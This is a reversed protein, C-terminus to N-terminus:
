AHIAEKLKVCVLNMEADTMQPFLPLALSLRDALTANPYNEARLDYKKVYYGLLVPAHTGQRTMIGQEELCMMVHNRKKHLREINKLSPTEPRFLSVYAQYGHVYGDPVKPLRLWPLSALERDYDHARRTRQELLKPARDMQVCGIAGQIDTMRYNYGLHDYEALLFGAKGQHRSLDTRSAGHDRLSRILQDLDSRRTTVMGGEGTTISKRPHFSFCGADGFLGAHTGQIQAGFACAADEVVWLHHKKAINLLPPMKACLGFLHVPLIGVTRPTILSEIQAVDINFTDLDIDCFVPRAGMYEVVNPTAVWTLAPVIVEDGPKLGLAAVVMHLATTCSSAAAAFPARSYATFKEEFKRVCPGQVIWGSELVAQVAKSEEPGFVPKTIPINM